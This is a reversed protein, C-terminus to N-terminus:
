SEMEEEEDEQLENEEVEEMRALEDLALKTGERPLFQRLRRSNYVGALPLGALTELTYSNVQRTAIRHPISWMPILKKIAAFTRVWKTEHVQVLDGPQFVVIRPARNQLKADFTAKRKAAHDVTSSYGDLRQQEVLAMHINIEEETPPGINDPNEASRSNVILGLMLENPSYKLSPLIRNNLNEIVIDLYDPWNNPIDKITMREYDDEGLGPACLRKLAEVVIRNYGELLGNIWPYYAAVVHHKTGISACYDRVEECNFHSGGDVMLTHPPIFPRTIRKLNDVTTKGTAAKSKFGWLKQTFVDAYLGIKSFGGKGVPLFNYDSVLLEFPQRRTIPALLAHIHMNGFNKCRACEMLVQAISSDLLPSCIQDLLKTRIHDRHMHLKNHEKQALQTAEAKTVCERRSVARTPTHGGLRWLKGDEIFYGKARHAAQKHERETSAATIGLLADIAEM